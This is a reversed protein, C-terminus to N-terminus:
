TDRLNYFYTSWLHKHLFCYIGNCFSLFLLYCFDLVGDPIFYHKLHVVLYSIYVPASLIPSPRWFPSLLKFSLMPKPKYPFIWKSSSCSTHIYKYIYIFVHNKEYIDGYKSFNSSASTSISFGENKGVMLRIYETPCREVDM